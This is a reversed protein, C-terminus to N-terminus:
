EAIDEKDKLGLQRRRARDMVIKVLENVARNFEVDEERTGGAHGENRVMTDYSTRARELDNVLSQEIMTLRVTDM